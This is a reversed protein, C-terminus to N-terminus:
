KPPLPELVPVGPAVQHELANIRSELQDLRNKTEPSETLVTDVQQSKGGFSLALCGPLACALVFAMMATLPFRVRLM